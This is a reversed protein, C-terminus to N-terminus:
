FSVNLHARIARPNKQPLDFDMLEIQTIGVSTDNGMSRDAGKGSGEILEALDVGKHADGTSRQHENVAVPTHGGQFAVSM